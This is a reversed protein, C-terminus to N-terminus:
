IVTRSVIIFISNADLQHVQYAWLSHPEDSSTFRLVLQICNSSWIDLSAVEFLSAFM